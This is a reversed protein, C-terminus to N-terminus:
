TLAIIEPALLKKESLSFFNTNTIPYKLITLGFVANIKQYSWEREM